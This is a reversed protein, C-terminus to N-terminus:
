QLNFFLYIKITTNESLRLSCTNTSIHCNGYFMGWSETSTGQHGGMITANKSLRLSCPNTSRHHNGCRVGWSDTSTPQQGGLLIKMIIARETILIQVYQNTNVSLSHIDQYKLTKQYDWLALIPQSKTIKKDWNEHRLVLAKIGKWFYPLLYIENLIWFYYM